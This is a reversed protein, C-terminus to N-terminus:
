QVRPVQRRRRRTSGGGAPGGDGRGPTERSDLPYADAVYAPGKMIHVLVCGLTVTLLATWGTIISAVAFIDVTRVQKATAFAHDIVPFWRVIGCLALPLLTAAAFLWPMLQLIRLERGPPTRRGHLQGPVPNM